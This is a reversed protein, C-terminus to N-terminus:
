RVGRVAAELRRNRATWHWGMMPTFQNSVICLSNECPALPRAGSRCAKAEHGARFYTLIAGHFTAM